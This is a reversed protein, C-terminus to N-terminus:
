AFRDQAYIGFQATQNGPPLCMLMDSFAAPCTKKMQYAPIFEIRDPQTDFRAVLQEGYAITTRAAAQPAKNWLYFGADSVFHRSHGAHCDAHRVFAKATGGATRPCAEHIVDRLNVPM